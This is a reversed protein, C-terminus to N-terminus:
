TGSGCTGASGRRWRPGRRLVAPAILTGQGEAKRGDHGAVRAGCGDRREALALEQEDAAARRDVTAGARMGPDDRWEGKRCPGVQLCRDALQRLQQLARFAPPAAALRPDADPM